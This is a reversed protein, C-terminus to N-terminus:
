SLTYEVWAVKTVYCNRVNPKMLDMPAISPDNEQSGKCALATRLLSGVTPSSLALGDGTLWAHALNFFYTIEFRLIETNFIMWSISTDLFRTNTQDFNRWEPHFLELNVFWYLVLCKELSRNELHRMKIDNFCFIENLCWKVGFFRTVTDNLVLFRM